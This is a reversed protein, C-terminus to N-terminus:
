KIGFSVTFEVGKETRSIKTIPLDVNHFGEAILKNKFDIAADESPALANFLLPMDASQIYIRRISINGNAALSSIKEFFESWVSREVSVKVAFDIKQNLDEIEKKNKEFEEKELQKYEGLGSFQNNLSAVTKGLFLNDIGAFVILVVTLTILIVNRWIKIFGLIRHQFFEEETGIKALSIMNDKSRSITGRVASGLVSFWAPQINEPAVDGIKKLGLPQVKSFSFNEAAIKVIADNLGHTVLIMEDIQEKWRTGYFSLVKKIEDVILKKFIDMPIERTESYITQWSVFHNFYLSSNKILNFSLGNAGVYFLLFPKAKNVNAGFDIALRALALASFEFAVPVFNNEKLASDLEDIIKSESFAGFIESQDRGDIIEEGIVRWDYYASNFDIPSIMKLNLNVAEELNHELAPLNFVQFYINNDSINVIINIKEKVKATIQSHMVSLASLFGERNNIKGDKVVGAALKASYSIFKDGELRSFKLDVDSIELAGIKPQPNLINLIKKYNM